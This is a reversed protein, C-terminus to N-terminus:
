ETDEPTAPAATHIRSLLDSKAALFAAIEAPDANRLGATTLRRAWATLEAIEATTVADTPRTDM